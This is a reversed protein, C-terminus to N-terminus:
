RRRQGAREACAVFEDITTMPTIMWKSDRKVWIRPRRHKVPGSGCEPHEMRTSTLEYKVGGIERIEIDVPSDIQGLSKSIGLTERLEERKQHWHAGEVKFFVARGNTGHDIAEVMRSLTLVTAAAEELLARDLSTEAAHLLRESLEM